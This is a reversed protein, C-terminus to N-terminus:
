AEIAKEDRRAAALAAVRQAHDAARDSRNAAAIREFDDDFIPADAAAEAGIVTRVAVDIEVWEGDFEVIGGVRAPFDCAGADLSRGAVEAVIMGFGTTDVCTRMIRRM